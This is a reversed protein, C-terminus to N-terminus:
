VLYCFQFDAIFAWDWMSIEPINPVSYIFVHGYGHSADFRKFQVPKSLSKQRSSLAVEYLKHGLVFPVVADDKLFFSLFFDNFIYLTKNECSKFYWRQTCSSFQSTSRKSASTRSSHSTARIWRGRSSGSSGPCRAGCIRWPISVFRSLLSFLNYCGIFGM